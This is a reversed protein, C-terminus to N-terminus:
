LGKRGPIKGGQALWLAYSWMKLTKAAHAKVNGGSMQKIRQLFLEDGTIEYYWTFPSGFYYGGRQVKKTPIYPKDLWDKEGKRRLGINSAVANAQENWGATIYWKAERGYISALQEAAARNAPSDLIKAMCRAGDGMIGVTQWSNAFWYNPDFTKAFPKHLTINGFKTQAKVRIAVDVTAVDVCDQRIVGDQSLSFAYGLAHTLWGQARGFGIGRGPNANVYQRARLLSGKGSRNPMARHPYINLRAVCQTGLTVLRDRSVPDCGLYAAPVVNFFARALHQDDYNKYRLYEKAQASLLGNAVVHVGQARCAPDKVYKAYDAPVKAPDAFQKGDWRLDALAWGRADIPVDLFKRGEKTVVHRSHTYPKGDDYFRYAHHRDWHRDSLLIHARITRSDAAVVPAIGVVYGLGGGGTVGGYRAGWPQAHGLKPWGKGPPRSQRTLKGLAGAPLSFPMPYKSAGYRATAFNSWSYLEQSPVPVLLPGSDAFLVARQRAAPLHATARLVAAAKDRMAYVKGDPLPPPCPQWTYGAEVTQQADAAPSYKKQWVALAMPAAVGVRIDRYFVLGNPHDISGNHIVLALSVFEEGALATLYARVRFFKEIAPKDRDAPAMPKLIAQYVEERLLPGSQRTEILNAKALPEARYRNGFVDTAEVIVPAKAALWKTVAPGAACAAPAPATALTVVDFEKASNAPLSAVRAVLQVIEPRGVPHTEDSGPYTSFVSVQTALVTEGDTLALCGVPKSFDRPLPLMGRVIMGTMDGSTQNSTRVKAVVAQGFAASGCMALCLALCMGGRTWTRM